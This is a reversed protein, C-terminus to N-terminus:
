VVSECQNRCMQSVAAVIAQVTHRLQQRFLCSRMHPTAQAHRLLARFATPLHHSSLPYYYDSETVTECLAPSVFTRDNTM